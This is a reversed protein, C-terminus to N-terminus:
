TLVALVRENQILPVCLVSRQQVTDDPFVHWRPDTTTDEVLAAMHNRVVWGALGEDMVKRLAVVSEDRNLERMLFIHNWDIQGDDHLFLSAKTAGVAQSMLRMVERMVMELDLSTLLQSVESLLKWDQLTPHPPTELSAM